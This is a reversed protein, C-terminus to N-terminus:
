AHARQGRPAAPGTTVGTSGNTPLLSCVPAPIKTRHLSLMQFPMVRTFPIVQLHLDRIAQRTEAAGMGLKGADHKMAIEMVSIASISTPNVLLKLAFRTTTWIERRHHRDWRVAEFNSKGRCQPENAVRAMLAGSIISESAALSGDNGLGAEILVPVGTTTDDLRAVIAYDNKWQSM